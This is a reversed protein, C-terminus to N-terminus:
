DGASLSLHIRRTGGTPQQVRLRKQLDTPFRVDFSAIVTLHSKFRCTPMAAAYSIFFFREREFVSVRSFVPAMAEEEVTLQRFSVLVIVSLSLELFSWRFDACPLSMRTSTVQSPLHADRV